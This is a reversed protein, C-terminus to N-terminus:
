IRWNWSAVTWVQCVMSRLTFVDKFDFVKRKSQSISCRVNVKIGTVVFVKGLKRSSILCCATITIVIRSAGVHFLPHFTFDTNVQRRGRSEHRRGGEWKETLSDVSRGSKVYVPTDSVHQGLQQVLAMSVLTIQTMQHTEARAIDSLVSSVRRRAKKEGWFRCITKLLFVHFIM